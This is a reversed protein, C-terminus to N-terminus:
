EEFPAGGFVPRGGLSTYFGYFAMAAMLLIGALGIGAYWASGQTTLPFNSLFDGFVLGVVLWLLGLRRLLFVTVVTFILSQVLAFLFSQSGAAFFFAICLVWALSAAWERRLLARFLFLLFLAGLPFLLGGFILDNSVFAITARASEPFMWDSGSLPRLPPYGLWSPVFWILMRLANTSAGWLCGALVDRGVLPDRFGGALLRSWSVLTAPWRRRVYPEMAIYLVWFFGAVFLWNSLGEVLLGFEDITPVHHAAFLWGVMLAAFVFGALRFAGRRDGRGLRLNRRALMAGVALISLLLVIGILAFVRQGATPQYPQMREPRTWPGILEFYVPRGRYTAAEIRMPIDPREALTGTWAARADSYGPPTWTPQSPSWKTPDLGAASFLPAWDPAGHPAGQPSPEAGAPQEVQPPVVILQTLRGLPNLRVLTMGSVDLPPDDTWVEGPPADSFNSGRRLPRPSGRYWFVVAGTELNNWRTKRKDHEAIYRLFEKGRYLGMASDVAPESYGASRLIDRARQALVEPPTELPVRRYLMVRASLLIAATVLVIVGALLGWAVAPRLGETEGSAAVMEPSPTEGAALAAALPDGGPLAAAVQLATAPRKAPDKELCRLIVREAIPDIDKVLLSPNTPSPQEHARRLEAVTTDEFARKGTFVEYLVLGLAYIDSQISADKGALQEPAMYAPTGAFREEASITGAVGAVGFDTIRVKGRGDIMVNAPKLDRHIVGHEHAAALGACMQRAIELAKFSPLHGIRRLLTSLDEGDVYEMTLFQFGDTQGIDFVRCVNPHSVQRAIRVERHFRAMAAGDQAISEPLFKLAVTQSLKLDEARYVEGMAGRGAMAVIRYRDELVTGPTFRAGDFSGASSSIRGSPSSDRKRASAGPSGPTRPTAETALTPTSGLVVERGCSPCFRATGPM